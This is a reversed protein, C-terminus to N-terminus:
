KKTVIKEFCYQGTVNGLNFMEKCVWKWNVSRVLQSSSEGCCCCVSGCAADLDVKM